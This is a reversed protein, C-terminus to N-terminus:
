AVNRQELGSSATIIEGGYIAWTGKASQVFPHYNWNVAGTESHVIMTATGQEQTNPYSWQDYHPERQCLMGNSFANGIALHKHIHGFNVTKDPWMLGINTAAYKNAKNGHAVILGGIEVHETRGLHLVRGGCRVTEIFHRMGVKPSDSRKIAELARREHNGYIWVFVTNPLLRNLQNVVTWFYERSQEQWDDISIDPDPAFRSITPLDLMDSGVVVVHPQFRKALELWLELTQLDHFPLHLDNMHMVRIFEQTKLLKALRQNWVESDNEDNEARKVFVPKPLIAITKPASTVTEYSQTVKHRFLVGAVTGKTLGLQTRIVKPRHGEADLRLIEARIADTVM